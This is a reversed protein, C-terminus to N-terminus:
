VQSSRHSLERELLADVSLRGAGVFAIVLTMVGWLYHQGRAAAFDDGGLVHWYSVLALANVAFLGLAGLRTFLGLVLLIPFFLEGFTGVVAAVAPPLLPVHYEDQFLYLTTDWTTLKLWGSALFQWAVWWRLGLLLIPRLFDLARALAGHWRVLIFILTM